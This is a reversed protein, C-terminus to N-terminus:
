GPLLEGLTGLRALVAAQEEFCMMVIADGPRAFALAAAVATLEDPVVASGGPVGDRGDAIGALFLDNMEDRTRGRLYRETERVWVFDAAEGALRGIARLADAARDGGTGIIALLRAGPAVFGRGFALLHTLGAENHAYDVIFTCAPERIAFANLRGFNQEPSNRFSRLGAAIAAPDLGLGFAAGAAALANEVMHGARGGFTIPVDTLAVVARRAAGEALVIRGRDALLARGGGALHERIPASDPQRSFFLVPARTVSAMARVLPDDANLVALGAPRTLRVVLRKVEALGEITDIGQLGLHDASINTVVGVDNSEYAVGRLLIGGRATELVAVDPSNDALVRRAGQPGTYDGELVREDGIWVGNSNAMGVRRGARTLIHALCRTTTTKGNTGTIGVLPIRREADRVILPRDGDARDTALAERLRDLAGALDYHEDALIAATAAVAVEAIGEAATRWEWGYALVIEHWGSRGPLDRLRTTWEPAPLDLADHLHRAIPWLLGDALDQGTAMMDTAGAHRALGSWRAFAAALTDDSLAPVALQLKIAPCPLFINAGDLTRIEIIELRGM